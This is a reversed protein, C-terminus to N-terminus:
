QDDDITTSSTGYYEMVLTRIEDIESRMGAVNDSMEQLGEQISTLETKIDKLESQAKFIMSLSTILGIGVIAIIINGLTTTM